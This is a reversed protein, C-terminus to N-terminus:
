DAYPAGTTFTAMRVTPEREWGAARYDAVDEDFRARRESLVRDLSASLTQIDAKIAMAPCQHQDFITWPILKTNEVSGAFTMKRKFLRLGLPSFSVSVGFLDAHRAIAECDTPSLSVHGHPNRVFM